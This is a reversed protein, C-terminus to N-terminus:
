KKVRRKRKRKSAVTAKAQTPQMEIYRIRSEHDNVEEDIRDIMSSNRGVIAINADMGGKFELINKNVTEVSRDVSDARDHLNKVQVSVLDISGKFQTLTDKVEQFDKTHQDKLTSAIADLKEDTRKRTKAIYKVLKVFGVVGGSIAM